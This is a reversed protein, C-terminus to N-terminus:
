VFHATFEGDSALLALECQLDMATEQLRVMIHSSQSSSAASISPSVSTTTVNSRELEAQLERDM